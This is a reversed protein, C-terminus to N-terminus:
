LMEVHNRTFPERMRMTFAIQFHITSSSRAIQTFLTILLLNFTVIKSFAVSYTVDIPQSECVTLMRWSCYCTLLTYVFHAVSLFVTERVIPSYFCPSTHYVRFATHALPLALSFSVDFALTFLLYQVHSFIYATCMKSFCVFTILFETWWVSPDSLWCHITLINLVNIPHHTHTRTHTLFHIFPTVNTTIFLQCIDYGCDGYELM